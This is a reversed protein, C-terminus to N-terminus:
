RYEKKINYKYRHLNVFPVFNWKIGTDESTYFRVGVHINHNVPTCIRLFAFMFSVSNKM